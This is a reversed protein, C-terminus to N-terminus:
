DMATLTAALATRTSRILALFELEYSNSIGDGDFDADRAQLLTTVGINDV